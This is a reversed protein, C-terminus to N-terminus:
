VADGVFATVEIEVGVGYALAAQVTSRAPFAGEFYPRYADNFEAFQALDSLWVTVRTVAGFGSGLEVLTAGIRDLVSVTQARINGRLPQGDDTMPIQGSLFLFGGARVAKSFPLPLPTPYRTVSSSTM